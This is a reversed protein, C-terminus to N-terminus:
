FWIKLAILGIAFVLVCSDAIIFIIRNPVTKKYYLGIYIAPYFTIGILFVLVPISILSFSYFATLTLVWVMSPFVLCYIITKKANLLVPLTKIGAAKDGVIDRIDCFVTNIFMSLTSGVMLVTVELKSVVINKDMFYLAFFSTGIIGSVLLSKVLPIEKLRVWRLQLKKTIWPFLPVSYAIGAYVCLVHYLTLSGTALLWLLSGSLIAVSFYLYKKRGVFFDRKASDNLYDEIDTYRNIGYVSFVICWWTIIYEMQPEIGLLFAGSWMAFSATSAFFVLVMLPFYRATKNRFSISTMVVEAMSVGKYFFLYQIKYRFLLM